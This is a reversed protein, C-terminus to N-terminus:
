LKTDSSSQSRQQWLMRKTAVDGTKVDKRSMNSKESNEEDKEFISRKNAVGDSAVVAGRSHSPPLRVSASRQIASNYKEMRDEIKRSRLSLRLSSRRTFGSDGKDDESQQSKVRVSSSLPGLRVFSTSTQQFSPHSDQKSNLNSSSVASVFVESKVAKNEPFPEEEIAEPVPSKISCSSSTRRPIKVSSVFVQTKYKSQSEHSSSTNTENQPESPTTSVPDSIPGSSIHGQTPHDEAKSHPIDTKEEELRKYTQSSNKQLQPKQVKVTHDEEKWSSFKQNLRRVNQNNHLTGKVSEPELCQQNKSSISQKQSISTISETQNLINNSTTGHNQNEEKISTVKQKEQTASKPQKVEQTETTSVKIKDVGTSTLKNGENHQKPTEAKEENQAQFNEPEKKNLLEKKEKPSVASSVPQSSVFVQTTYKSQSGHSSSTNTENQPESPTTSVPDSIPGSSNKGQTPHDQAKSDPIDTKEEELRKYTQSSNKQLQAKQVKVTHDEEKWNSFKQNLRRVNQNNHLTGKVSEPELCQQNKSSISQKQSISTISETQNPINNSTTGHNQNEEKISTVKQKEQTASKPQKVEQTETTSVKIKDVGTSTLKNGENHQKPTEAKEENQAQFNEPEKENLLEKKEKPSVASSVPQSSSTEPFVEMVKTTTSGERNRRRKERVIEEEDDEIWQQAMRSLNSWNGRSISM